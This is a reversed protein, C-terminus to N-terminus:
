RETKRAAFRRMLLASARFFRGCEDATEATRASARINITCLSSLCWERKLYEHRERLTKFISTSKLWCYLKHSEGEQTLTHSSSLPPGVPPPTLAM